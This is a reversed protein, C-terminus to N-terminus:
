KTGVQGCRSGKGKVDKVTLLLGCSYNGFKEKLAFGSRRIQKTRASLRTPPERLCM